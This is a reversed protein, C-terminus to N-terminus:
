FHGYTPYLPNPSQHFNKQCVQTIKNMLRILHYSIWQDFLFSFWKAINSKEFLIFNVSYLCHYITFNLHLIYLKESCSYSVDPILIKAIKLRLFKATLSPKNNYRLLSLLTFSLSYTAHTM